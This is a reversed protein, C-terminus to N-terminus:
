AEADSRVLKNARFLHDITGVFIRESAGVISKTNVTQSLAAPSAQGIQCALGHRRM